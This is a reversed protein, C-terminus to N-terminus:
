LLALTRAAMSAASLSMLRTSRFPLQREAFHQPEAPLGVDYFVCEAKLDKRQATVYRFAAGGGWSLGVIAFKGNSLRAMGM